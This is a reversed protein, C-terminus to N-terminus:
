SRGSVGVLDWPLVGLTEGKSEGLTLARLLASSSTSQLRRLLHLKKELSWASGEINKPAACLSAFQQQGSEQSRLM